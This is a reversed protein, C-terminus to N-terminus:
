MDAYLYATSLIVYAAGQELNWKYVADGFARTPQLGGFVRGRRIVDNRESAPHESRM